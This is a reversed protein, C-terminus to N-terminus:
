KIPIKNEQLNRVRLRLPRPLSITPPIKTTVLIVERPSLCLALGRTPHQLKQNSINHLRPVQSKAYEVLIFESDIAQGWAVLNKIEDGRFLGDRYILVRKNKFDKIPLFDQLITGPIEEGETLSDSAIQYRIFEGRTDYLRVSACANVSGKGNKKSKRSIDLGVFYDAISLPEALVFPLNGLKALIGPVVQQYVFKSQERLTKEYIM